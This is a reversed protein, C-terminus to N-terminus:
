HSAPPLQARLADLADHAMGQEAAHRRYTDLMQRTQAGVKSFHYALFAEADFGPVWPMIRLLLKLVATRGLLGAVRLPQAGHRKAEAAVAQRAAAVAVALAPHRRLAAFKWGALELGAILPIMLASSQAARADLDDAVDAHLGGRSLLAAFEAGLGGAPAFTTASALPPALFTIGRQDAPEGPLPSQWSSFQIIAQVLPRAPGALGRVLDIDEPDPQLIVVPCNGSAGLMQQLWDGQRLADSPTTIWISDYDRAAAPDTIVGFGDFRLFEPSRLPRVRWTDIGRALRARHHERVLFSVRAGAKALALGYVTGTAGAGVILIRPETPM